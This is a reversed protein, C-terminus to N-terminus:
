YLWQCTIQPYIIIGRRGAVQDLSTSMCAESPTLRELGAICKCRAICRQRAGGQNITSYLNNAGGLADTFAFSCRELQRGLRLAGDCDHHCPSHLIGGITGGELLEEERDHLEPLEADEWFPSDRTGGRNTKHQLATLKTAWLQSDQTVARRSKHGLDHVLSSRM